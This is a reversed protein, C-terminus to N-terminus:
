AKKKFDSKRTKMKKEKQWLIEQIFKKESQKGWNRGGFMEISVKLEEVDFGFRIGFINHLANNDRRNLLVFCFVLIFIEIEFHKSHKQTWTANDQKEHLHNKM